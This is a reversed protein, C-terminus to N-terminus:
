AGRRIRGDRPIGRQGPAVGGHLRVVGHRSPFRGPGGHVGHHRSACGRCEGSLDCRLPSQSRERTHRSGPQLGRSTAPRFGPLVRGTRDFASRAGRRPQRSRVCRRSLPEVRLLRAPRAVGVPGSGQHQQGTARGTALGLRGSSSLSGVAQGSGQRISEVGAILTTSATGSRRLVGGPSWGGSPDRPRQGGGRM